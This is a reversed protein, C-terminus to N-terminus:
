AYYDEYGLKEFVDEPFTKRFETLLEDDFFDPFRWKKGTTNTAYWPINEKIDFCKILNYDYHMKLHSFMKDVTGEFDEYFDEMKLTLFREDDYNWNYLRDITIKSMNNMEFLLGEKDTCQQVHERYSIDGVRLKDVGDAKCVQHHHYASVIIEYPNRITHIGKVNCANIDFTCGYCNDSQVALTARGVERELIKSEYMIVQADEPLEIRRSMDYYRMGWYGSM